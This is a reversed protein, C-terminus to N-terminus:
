GNLCMRAAAEADIGLTDVLTDYLDRDFSSSNMFINVTDPSLADEEEEFGNDTYVYLPGDQSCFFAMKALKLDPELLEAHMNIEDSTWEGM